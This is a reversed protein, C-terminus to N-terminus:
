RKPDTLLVAAGFAIYFGIESSHSGAPFSQFWALALSGLALAVDLTRRTQPKRLIRAYSLVAALAYLTALFAMRAAEIHRVDDTLLPLAAMSTALLLDIAFRKM